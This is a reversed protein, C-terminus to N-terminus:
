KARLSHPTLGLIHKARMRLIPPRGRDRQTPEQVLRSTTLPHRNPGRIRIDIMIPIIIKVSFGRYNKRGSFGVQALGLGGVVLPRLVQLPHGGITVMIIMNRPNAPMPAALVLASLRQPLRHRMNPTITSFPVRPTALPPKQPTHFAQSLIMNSIIPTIPISRRAPITRKHLAPNTAELSPWHKGIAELVRIKASNQLPSTPPDGPFCRRIYIM